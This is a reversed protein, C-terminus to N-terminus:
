AGRKAHQKQHHTVRFVEPVGAGGAVADAVLEGLLPAFKAGHGSCASVVVVGDAEDLVFDETATSTFLCTTEAYPEPILGPLYQRAYSIMRERMEPHIRGDQDQASAIVPGGNFQALKQGRFGADRGGPLGYAQMGPTKHIFTPWPPAGAGVDAADRYPMHFAQEQRVELAPFSALFAEPLAASRLLRPLWGGAAVVVKAAEVREGISSRAEFGNSATREVEEVDWGTLVRVRGTQEAADLMVRVAAAADIVGAAPHWLVEGSLHFQPWREQAQGAPLVEHDVGAAELVRALGRPDRDEGHDLAGTLRILESGSSRELEDWGQRARCVLDTYLFDPYAYRFIRASGHSSGEANGPVTREVLTVTRGAQALRWAAAAGALGAGIILVDTAHSTM